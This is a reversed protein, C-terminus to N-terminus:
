QIIKYFIPLLDMLRKEECKARKVFYIAVRDVFMRLRFQAHRHAVIGFNISYFFNVMEDM